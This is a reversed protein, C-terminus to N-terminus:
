AQKMGYIAKELKCVMTYGGEKFSSPQYMYVSELLDVHLFANNVDVLRVTWGRNLALTLVVRITITKMIPSFTEFYDVGFEQLYRRAVLKVKYEDLDRYTLFKIRFMWKCTILSVGIPLPVM